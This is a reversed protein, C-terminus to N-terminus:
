AADTLIGLRPHELAARHHDLSSYTVNWCLEISKTKGICSTTWPAKHFRVWYMEGYDDAPAVIVGLDGNCLDHEESIHPPADVM